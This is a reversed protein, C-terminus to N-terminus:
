VLFASTKEEKEMEKAYFAAMDKVRDKSGPAHCTIGDRIMDGVHKKTRKTAKVKRIKWLPRNVKDSDLAYAGPKHGVVECEVNFMQFLEIDSFRDALAIAQTNMNKGKEVRIITM